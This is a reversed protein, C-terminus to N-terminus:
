GRNYRASYIRYWYILDALTYLGKPLTYVFVRTTKEDYYQPNLKILKEALQQRDM